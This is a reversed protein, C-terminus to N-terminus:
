NQTYIEGDHKIEQKSWEMTRRIDGACDGARSSGGFLSVLNLM